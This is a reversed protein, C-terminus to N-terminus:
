MIMEVHEYLNFSSPNCLIMKEFHVQNNIYELIKGILTEGTCKLAKNESGFKPLETPSITDVAISVSSSKDFYPLYRKFERQMSQAM